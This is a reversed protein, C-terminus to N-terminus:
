KSTPPQGAAPLGVRKFRPVTRGKVEVAQLWEALPRAWVHGSALSRFVVLLTPPSELVATDVVEYEGGNYHRYREGPRPGQGRARQLEAGPDPRRARGATM